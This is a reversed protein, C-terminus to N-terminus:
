QAAAALGNARFTEALSPARRAYLAMVMRAKGRMAPQARLLAAFEAPHGFIREAYTQFDNELGTLGLQSVFGAGHLAAEGERGGPDRLEAKYSEVDGYRFGAANFAQWATEDLGGAALLLAALEDHMSDADFGANAPADECSIAVLGPAHFGGIRISWADISDALAVQQVLSTVLGVPYAEFATKVAGLCAIRNGPSLDTMAVPRTATAVLPVIRERLGNEVVRLHWAAEISERLSDAAPAAAALASLAFVGALWRRWRM